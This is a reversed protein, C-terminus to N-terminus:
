IRISRYWRPYPTVARLVMLQLLTTESFQVSYSLTHGTNLISLYQGAYVSVVYCGCSM